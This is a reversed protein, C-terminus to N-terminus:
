CHPIWPTSSGRFAEPPVIIEYQHQGMITGQSAVQVKGGEINVTGSAVLKDSSVNNIDVAFISGEHFVVSGNVTLTGIGDDGPAITGYNHLTTPVMVTITGDGGVLGTEWVYM